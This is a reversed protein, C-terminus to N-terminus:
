SVIRNKLREAAEKNIVVNGLKENIKLKRNNLGTGGCTLCTTSGTLTKARKRIKVEGTGKCKKCIKKETKFTKYRYFIGKGKCTTCTEGLIKGNGKCKKCTEPEVGEGNCVPCAVKVEIMIRYLEGTGNCSTCIEQSPQIDITFRGIVNMQETIIERLLVNRAEILLVKNKKRKKYEKLYQGFIFNQEAKKEIPIQLYDSATQSDLTM